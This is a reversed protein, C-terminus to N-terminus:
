FFKLIDVADNRYSRLRPHKATYESNVQKIVLEFDGLVTIRRAGLKKLLNLGLILAEYESINNTCKFHLNCTHNEAYDSVTNRIWVGAGVTRKTCSGDFSM